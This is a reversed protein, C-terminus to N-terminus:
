DSMLRDIASRYDGDIILEQDMNCFLYDVSASVHEQLCFAIRQGDLHHEQLLGDYKVKLTLHDHTLTHLQQV